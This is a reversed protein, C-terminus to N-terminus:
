PDVISFVFLKEPNGDHNRVKATSFGTIHFLFFVMSFASWVRVSTSYPDFFTWVLLFLVSYLIM